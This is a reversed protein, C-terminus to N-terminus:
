ICYLHKSRKTIVMSVKMASITQTDACKASQSKFDFVWCSEIKKNKKKEYNEISLDFM